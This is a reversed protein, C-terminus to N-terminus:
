QDEFNAGKEQWSLDAPPGRVFKDNRNKHKKLELIGMQNKTTVEIENSTNEKHTVKGCEKRDRSM